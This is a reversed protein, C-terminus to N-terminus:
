DASQTPDSPDIDVEGFRARHWETGSVVLEGGGTVGRENMCLTYHRRDTASATTDRVCWSGKYAFVEVGHEVGQMVQSHERETPKKTILLDDEGLLALEDPDDDPLLPHYLGAPTAVWTGVVLLGAHPASCSIRSVDADGVQKVEAVQCALTGRETKAPVWADGRLEGHVSEIPLSWARGREFLSLYPPTSTSPQASKTSGGCAAIACLM